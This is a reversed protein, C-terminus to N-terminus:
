GKGFPGFSQDRRPSKRREWSEAERKSGGKKKRQDVGKEGGVRAIERGDGRKKREFWASV